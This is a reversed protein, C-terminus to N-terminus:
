FLEAHGSFLDEAKRVEGPFVEQLHHGLAYLAVTLGRDVLLDQSRFGQLLRRACLASSIIGGEASPPAYVHWGGYLVRDLIGIGIVLHECLAM